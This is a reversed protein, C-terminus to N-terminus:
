VTRGSGPAPRAQPPTLIDDEGRGNMLSRIQEGLVSAFPTGVTSGTALKSVLGSVVSIGFTAVSAVEFRRVNVQYGNFYGIWNKINREPWNLTIHAEDFYLAALHSRRVFSEFASKDQQSAFQVTFQIDPQGARIPFHNLMRRTQASQIEASMPSRFQTVNMTFSEGLKASKIVLRSM